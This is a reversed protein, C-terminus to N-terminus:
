DIGLVIKQLSEFASARDPVDLVCEHISCCHNCCVDIASDYSALLDHRGAQIAEDTSSVWLFCACVIPVHTKWGFIHLFYLCLQDYEM